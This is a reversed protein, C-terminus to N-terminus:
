EATKIGFDKKAIELERKLESIFKNQEDIIEAQQKTLYKIGKVASFFHGDKVLKFTSIEKLDGMDHIDISEMTHEEFNYRILRDEDEDFGLIPGKFSQKSITEHYFPLRNEYFWRFVENNEEIIKDIIEEQEKQLSKIETKNSNIKELEKELQIITEVTKSGM